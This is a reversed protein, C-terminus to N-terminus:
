RIDDVNFVHVVRGSASMDTDTVVAIMLEKGVISCVSIAADEMLFISTPNENVDFNWLFIERNSNAATVVWEDTHETSKMVKMSKVDTSHAAVESEM